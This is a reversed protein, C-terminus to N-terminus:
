NRMLKKAVTPNRVSRFDYNSALIESVTGRSEKRAAISRHTDVRKWTIFCESFIARTLATDSNSFLVRVGRETLANILDRLRIQSDDLFDTASYKSFSSTASLPIYPPDFYVFDGERAEKVANTFDTSQIDVNNLWRSTAMLLESDCVKPNKLHGYPVNFKGKSNVRYLGNFGTRNLYVLRAAADMKSVPTFVDRWYYYKEESIDVAMSRLRNILEVPENALCQYVQILELNVDNAFFRKSKSAYISAEVEPIKALSFTLAGSGFFPEFVRHKSLDLDCPLMAHLAPLLKRKSGAWRLFPGPSSMNFMMGYLHRGHVSPIPEFAAGKANEPLNTAIDTAM